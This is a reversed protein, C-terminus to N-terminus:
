DNNLAQVGSQLGNPGIVMTPTSSGKCVRLWQDYSANSGGFTSGNDTMWQALEEQTAFAPSVPTGESTTEYMMFHTRESEPWDPMYEAPDPRSGDWSEYTGAKSEDDAYAPFEGKAWKAAEEDWKAARRMFGDHLPVYRVQGNPYFGDKPHQWSAPVKRVERSM